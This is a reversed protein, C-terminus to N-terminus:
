ANRVQTTVRRLVRKSGKAGKIARVDSRRGLMQTQGQLSHM